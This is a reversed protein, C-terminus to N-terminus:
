RSARATPSTAMAVTQANRSSPTIETARNKAILVSRQPESISDVGSFLVLTVIAATAASVLRTTLSLTNM